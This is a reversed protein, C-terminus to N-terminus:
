EAAPQLVCGSGGELEPGGTRSASLCLGFREEPTLDPEALAELRSIRCITSAAPDPSAQGPYWGGCVDGCEDPSAYGPIGPIDNCSSLFATCYQQCVEGGLSRCSDAGSPSARACNAESSWLGALTVHYLRCGLSDTARDEAAGVPWQACQGLCTEPDPYASLSGPCVAPYEECYAECTVEEAAEIEVCEGGLDDPALDEYRQESACTEDEYSCWGSSQCVGERAELRCQDDDQCPYARQALCGCSAAIGLLLAHRIGKM